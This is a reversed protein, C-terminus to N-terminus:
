LVVAAWLTQALPFDLAQTQLAKSHERLTQVPTLLVGGGFLIELVRLAM